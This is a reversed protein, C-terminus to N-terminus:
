DCTCDPGCAGGSIQFGEGKSTKVYDITAGRVLESSVPDVFVEVAKEEFVIDNNKPSKELELSYSLCNCEDRKAKIRLGQSLNGEEAMYEKVKMAACEALTVVKEVSAVRAMQM